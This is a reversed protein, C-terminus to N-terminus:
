DPHDSHAEAEAVEARRGVLAPLLVADVVLAMIAGYALLLGLRVVPNFGSLGLVAYQETVDHLQLGGPGLSVGAPLNTRIHEYDYLAKAAATAIYFEGEAVKLVTVDAEIGGNRNLALTYM